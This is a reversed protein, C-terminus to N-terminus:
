GEGRSLLALIADAREKCRCLGECILGDGGTCTEYRAIEIIVRERSFRPYPRAYLPQTFGYEPQAHRTLKTVCESVHETPFWNETGTTWAVPAEEGKDSADRPLSLAALALLRRVTNINAGSMDHGDRGELVRTWHDIFWVRDYLERHPWDQAPGNLRAPPAASSLPADAM